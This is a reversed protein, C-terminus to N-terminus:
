KSTEIQINNNNNVMDGHYFHVHNAAAPLTLPQDLEATSYGNNRISLTDNDALSGLYQAVGGPTRV